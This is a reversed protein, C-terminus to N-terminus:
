DDTGCPKCPAACKRTGGYWAHKGYGPHDQVGHERAPVGCIQCDPKPDQANLRRAHALYEADTFTM